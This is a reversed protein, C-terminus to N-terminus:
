ASFLVLGVTTLGLGIEEAYFAPLYVYLPLNLAALPLGLAGYALLTRFAIPAPAKTM